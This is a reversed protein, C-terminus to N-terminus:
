RSIGRFRIERISLTRRAVEKQLSREMAQMVDGPVLLPLASWDVYLICGFAWIDGREDSLGNQQDM